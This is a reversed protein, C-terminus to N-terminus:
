KEIKYVEFEAIGMPGNTSTLKFELVKKNIDFAWVDAYDQNDWKITNVLTWNVGDATYELSYENEREPKSFTIVVRGVDVPERYKYSLSGHFKIVCETTLDGDSTDIPYGGLDYGEYNLFIEAAQIRAEDAFKFPRPQTYISPYTGAWRLEAVTKEIDMADKDDYKFPVALAFNCDIVGWKGGSKVRAYGDKFDEADDFLMDYAIEGNKKIYAYQPKDNVLVVAYGSGFNNAAYFSKEFLLKGDYDIYSWKDEGPSVVLAAGDSFPLAKEYKAEIIIGNEDRYGYLGNEEFREPVSRGDIEYPDFETGSGSLIRATEENLYFAPRVGLIMGSLYEDNLVFSNDTRRNNTLRYYDSYAYVSMVHIGHYYGVGDNHPSYGYLNVGMQANTTPTRLWWSSKPEGYKSASRYSEKKAMDTFEVESLYSGLLDINEEIEFLQEVDLLFMTEFLIEYNLNNFDERNVDSVTIYSKSGGQKKKIDVTDIVSNLEVTKIVSRQSDTFNEESLFGSENAFDEDKPAAGCLWEVEGEKATSNLWSRINSDGWYNSYSSNRLEDAYSIGNSLALSNHSGSDFREDDQIKGVTDFAKRCLNKDSLILKGNEDDAVYRWLIDEGRYKGLTIYDGIKLESVTATREAYGDSSACITFLGTTLVAM